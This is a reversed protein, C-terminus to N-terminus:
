SGATAAIGLAPTPRMARLIELAGMPGPACNVGIAALDLEALADVMAAQERYAHPPRETAFTLMGILPLDTVTRVADIALLLEDLRFFTELILLDAGRGALIAAQEAHAEPIRRRGEADDLDLVGALPGISGAVLCDRGAVERAERAVKVAAGNVEEVRDGARDRELRPRSAGFTATELIEAGAALYSLHVELVQRPHELIALELSAGPPLRGLLESGMAGDCVVVRESLRRRVPCSLAM